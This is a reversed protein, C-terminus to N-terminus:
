VSISGFGGVNHALGHLQVGVAVGGDILRHDAEGPSIFGQQVGKHVGFAVEALRIGPVHGVGGGPVGLGFQLGDAALQEPVDGLVRHIKDGVVVVGHHLGGQQRHGEGGDQGIGIHADRHAHGAGDAGEVQSLDAFGGDGQHFIRGVIHGGGQLGRIERPSPKDEVVWLLHAADVLGAPTADLHTGAIGIVLRFVANFDGM